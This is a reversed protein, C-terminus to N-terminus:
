YIITSNVCSKSDPFSPKLGLEPVIYVKPLKLVKKHGLQKMKFVLNTVVQGSKKVAECSQPFIIYLFANETLYLLLCYLNHQIERITWCHVPIQRGICPSM